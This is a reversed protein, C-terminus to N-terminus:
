QCNSEIPGGSQMPSSLWFLTTSFWVRNRRLHDMSSAVHSGDIRRSRLPSGGSTVVRQSCGVPIRVEVCNQNTLESGLPQLRGNVGTPLSYQPYYRPIKLMRTYLRLM